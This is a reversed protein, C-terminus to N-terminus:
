HQLKWSCKLVRKWGVSFDNQKQKEFTSATRREARTRPRSIAVCGNAQRRSSGAFDIRTSTLGDDTWRVIRQLAELPMSNNSSLASAEHANTALRDQLVQRYDGHRNTTPEAVM